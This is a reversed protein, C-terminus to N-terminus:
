LLKLFVSDGRVTQKTVMGAGDPVVTKGRSELMLIADRLAMGRTDPLTDAPAISRIVGTSDSRVFKGSTNGKLRVGIKESMRVVRDRDGGKVQPATRARAEAEMEKRRAAESIRVPRAAGGGWDPSQSYVKDAIARFVPGSLSGGYYVKDSGIPHFTEIAVICSYKPKDAPFYGVISGLYYRGGNVLYGQRGKAVQATGTKGAVRYNDNRLIAATGDNVVGELSEKLFRLTAQSCIHENIAEPEFDKVTTNRNRIETVLLPKMYRGNNAIANYIALTHIPTMLLAYGFSMMTLTSGNWQKDGPRRIMPATEGPVQLDYKDALGLKYLYDTFREPDAGYYKNIAKAFGINSSVEFIRKLSIKGFGGKHSDTVKVKYPTMYAVGSETDFVENIGAKADDLLAMLTVLKFTSGPEMNMGVGYNYDEVYETKGSSSTQKNLNAIARIEGTSVEMLIATGWIADHKVLQERLSAEATEQVEIDITSVVDYGDIPNINNPNPIPMWFNGSIKQVATVGDIGALEKDFYSEIGFGGNEGARGITRRAMDGHPFVRQQITDILMGGRNRGRRLIPFGVVQKLEIYNIRRPTIRKYRRKENRWRYLSDRYAEAPRDKFFTALSLSLSDVGKRFAEDDLGEAALDMYIHYLPITTALMRNDHSLIDGRKATTSRTGFSRGNKAEDRLEFGEPGYQIYLTRGIIILGAILFIYYLYLSRNYIEKRIDKKPQQPRHRGAPVRETHRHPTMM